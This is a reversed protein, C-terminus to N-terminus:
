LLAKIQEGIVEVPRQQPQLGAMATRMRAQEDVDRVLALAQPILTTSAAEEEIVIAANAAAMAAANHHQHRGVVNPSPVVIAPKQIGVVEALSLAGGRTIVVDSAAYVAAMDDAFPLLCGWLGGDGAKWAAVCAAYYGKGCLWIWQVGSECITQQHALMSDNFAKAGLSGGMILVVPADDRLGLQTLAASKSPLQYLASRLPTGTFVAKAGVAMAPYGVCVCRARRSLFRHALGAVANSEHILAPISAWGALWVCPVSVYGGTGIVAHPRFRWLVWAALCVSRVMGWVFGINALLSGRVMGRVPLGYYAFGAKPVLLREARSRSGVFLIKCLFVEQLHAALALAPFIHGGTGGATILFRYTMTSNTMTNNTMTSNMMTEMMMTMMTMVMMM